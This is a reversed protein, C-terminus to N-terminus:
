WANEDEVSRDMGEEADVGRGVWASARDSGVDDDVTAADEDEGLVWFGRAPDGADEM